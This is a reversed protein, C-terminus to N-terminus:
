ASGLPTIIRHPFYGEPHLHHRRTAFHIYFSGSEGIVGTTAVLQGFQGWFAQGESHDASVRIRDAGIFECLEIAIEALAHAVGM